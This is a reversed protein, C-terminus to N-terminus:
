EEIIIRSNEKSTKKIVRNTDVIIKESTEKTEEKWAEKLAIKMEVKDARIKYAAEKEANERVERRIDMQEKITRGDKTKIDEFEIETLSERLVYHEISTVPDLGDGCWECYKDKEDILHRCKNCVFENVLIIIPEGTEKDFGKAFMNELKIM